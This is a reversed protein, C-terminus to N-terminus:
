RKLQEGHERVLLRGPCIKLRAQPGTAGFARDAARALPDRHSGAAEVSAVLALFVKRHAGACNKLTAVDGQVFPNVRHVQKHGSALANRAHLEGLFDPDRLLRSPENQMAQPFSAATIVKALKSADNFDIFGEDAALLCVFVFALLELSATAGNALRRNEAHPFTAASGNGHRDAAGISFCDLASNMLIDLSSRHQVGIFGASIGADIAEIVICDIVTGAFVNAVAYGRVADFANKGNELAAANAGIMMGAFLVKAAVDIFKGEAEIFAVDLVVGQRPEVAENVTNGALTQSVLSECLSCEWAAWLILRLERRPVTDASASSWTPSSVGANLSYFLLPTM